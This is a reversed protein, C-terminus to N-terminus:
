DEKEDHEWKDESPQFLLEMSNGSSSGSNFMADAMEAVAYEVGFRLNSAGGGSGDGDRLDLNMSPRWMESSINTQTQSASINALLNPLPPYSSPATLSKHCIHEGRYTVEVINPNNDLRQVQKKAPCLYLKQHTCRYYSRPYKRGLIEKQGYKRWIFGDEPPMETNGIQPAPFMEIRKELDNKRQKPRSSSSPTEKGQVDVLQKGKSRLMQADDGGSIMENELFVSVDFPHQILLLPDMSHAHMIQDHQKKQMFVDHSLIQAFSGSGKTTTTNYQSSSSSSLMMMVREKADSYAKEVEHISSYLIETNNVMNPLELDLNKALEFAHMMFSMVEEM